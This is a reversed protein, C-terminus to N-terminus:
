YDSVSDNVENKSSKIPKKHVSSPLTQTSEFGNRYFFSIMATVAAGSALLLKSRFTIIKWWKRNNASPWSNHTNYM